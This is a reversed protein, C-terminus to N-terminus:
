QGTYNYTMTYGITVYSGYAYQNQNWRKGKQIANWQSSTGRYKISTLSTCNYLAYDGISTVSDPITISTLKKCYSFADDGISTVSDPITFSVDSKGIAYQILTKGDKSYLNGAISKYASNNDSVTISTLSACDYFAHSDIRAVSSGITLSTLDWCHAFASYGISTVRNGITVSTLGFCDSFANDGITIVSDPITISTLSTYHFANDGISTVGNGITVSTLRSCMSFAGYLIEGGTVTVSKLSSPIHYTTYTNSSYYQNINVGGDYSSTGFIYGFLTSPSASTASKSGGVFPLTISELSSCGAFASSGISTVYDPVVIETVSKDKIGTITCSATTSTFNFNAMEAKPAFRATVNRDITFTSTKDASILDDGSYWGVFDYGINETATTEVTSGYVYSGGGTVSGGSTNASSLTYVNRTYYVKLVLSGDGAIQGRVASKSANFTFHEFEKQEATAVTGTIGALIETEASVLDYGTKTPNELYYEVKYPTDNNAKWSATIVTDSTIPTNFDYNWSDFIYGARSTDPASAFSGEEVTQSEVATGGNANFRVTYMPLRRVTVSYLKMTNGNTVLIYFTNDGVSLPVTKSYIVQECYIDRAVVYTANKAVKIDSLFSFTETANSVSGSLTEGQVTLQGSILDTGQLGCSSLGLMVTLCIILSLLLLFLKKM